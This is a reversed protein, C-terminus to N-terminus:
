FIWLNYLHQFLSTKDTSYNAKILQILKRSLSQSFLGLYPLKAFTIIKPVVYYQQKKNFINNLTKCSAGEIYYLPSVM